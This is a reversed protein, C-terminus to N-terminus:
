IRVNRKQTLFELYEFDQITDVEVVPETIFSMIYKGHLTANDQMFHFPKVIDVYGNPIYTKPFSQRNDNSDEVGPMSSWFCGNKTFFKFASESTEHASRLSDVKGKVGSIKQIADEVVSPDTLPTTARLHVIPSSYGGLHDCFHRFADIDKSDDTALYDPRKVVKAGYGKSVSAIEECDTSVFIDTISPTNKATNIPYAILPAGSLLKINKKPVGKSGGRALILAIM